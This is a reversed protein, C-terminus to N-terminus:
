VPAAQLDTLVEVVRGRAGDDLETVLASDDGPGVDGGLVEGRTYRVRAAPEPQVAGREAGDRQHVLGLVPRHAVGRVPKLLVQHPGGLSRAAAPCGPGARGGSLR